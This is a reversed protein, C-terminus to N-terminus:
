RENNNPKLASYSQPRQSFGFETRILTLSRGSVRQLLQLVVFRRGRIM